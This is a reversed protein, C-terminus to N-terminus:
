RRDREVDDLRRALDHLQKELGDIYIFTRMSCDHEAMGKRIRRLEADAQAQDITVVSASAAAM